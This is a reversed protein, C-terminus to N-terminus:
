NESENVPGFWATFDALRLYVIDEAHRGRAPSHDGGAVTRGPRRRPSTHPRNDAMGPHEPSTESGCEALRAARGPHRRQRTRYDTRKWGGTSRAGARSM